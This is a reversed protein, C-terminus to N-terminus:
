GGHKSMNLVYSCGQWKKSWDERYATSSHLQLLIGIYTFFTAICKSKSSCVGAPSEQSPARLPVPSQLSMLVAVSVRQVSLPSILPFVKDQVTYFLLRFCIFFYRLKCSIYLHFDMNHVYLDHPLMYLSPLALSLFTFHTCPLPIWGPSRSLWFHGSM